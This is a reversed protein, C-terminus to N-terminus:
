SKGEAKELLASNRLSFSWSATRDIIVGSQWVGVFNLLRTKIRSDKDRKFVKSLLEESESPVLNHETFMSFFYM